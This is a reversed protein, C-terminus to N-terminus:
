YDTPVWGLHDVWFRRVANCGDRWGTGWAADAAAQNAQGGIQIAQASTWGMFAGSGVSMVAVLTICYISTCNSFASDGISTVGEPLTISFLHIETGQLSTCGSFAGQGISTLQSGTPVLSSVSTLNTCWRFAWDGIHTVTEPLTVAGSIGAQPAKILTTKAKNYLIGNQSSYGPNDAAVTIDALSSCGYFVVNGISTVGEPITIGTLNTCGFFAYHGISTIGEPITIGTLNTCHQFAGNNINNSMSGIQTVPMFENDANPRYYDPIRVTGIVSTGEKVSYSGGILTFIFRSSTGTLRQQKHATNSQCVSEETGAIETATWTGWTHVHGGGVSYDCVSCLNGTHYAVDTKAGDNATCERWHQSADYSWAVSYSHTHTGGGGETGGGEGCAIFAPMLIVALIGCLITQRTKM